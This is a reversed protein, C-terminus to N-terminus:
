ALVVHLRRRLGAQFEQKKRASVPLKPEFFGRFHRLIASKAQEGAAVGVRLMNILLHKIVPTSCWFQPM